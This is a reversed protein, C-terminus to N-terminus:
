VSKHLCQSDMGDGPSLSGVLNFCGMSVTLYYYKKFSTSVVTIFCGVENSCNYVEPIFLLANVYM